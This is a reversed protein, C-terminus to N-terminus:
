RRVGDRQQSAYIHPAHILNDEPRHSDLTAGCACRMLSNPKQSPMKEGRGWMGYKREHWDRDDRWAQFDAETRRALLAHWAAEFELRAAEFNEASGYRHQGPETGPYFGCNWDWKHEDNPGGTRACITGVHVDTYYILWSEQPLNPDRRRTLETM